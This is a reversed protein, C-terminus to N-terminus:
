AFLWQRGSLVYCVEHSEQKDSTKASSRNKRSQMNTRLRQKSLVRIENGHSSIGSPRSHRRITDSWIWGIVRKATSGSGLTSCVIAFRNWRVQVAKACRFAVLLKGVQYQNFSGKSFMQRVRSSQVTAVHGPRGSSCSEWRSGLASSGAHGRSDHCEQSREFQYRCSPRM